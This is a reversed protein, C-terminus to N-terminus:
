KRMFAFFRECITAYILSNIFLGIFFLCISYLLTLKRPLNLALNVGGDFGFLGWGSRSNSCVDVEGNSKTRGRNKRRILHVKGLLGNFDGGNYNLWQSPFNAIEGKKHCIGAVVENNDNPNIINFDSYGGMDVESFTWGVVDCYFDRIQVANDVTLDQWLMKGFKEM